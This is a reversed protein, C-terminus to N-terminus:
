RYKERLKLVNEILRKTQAPTDDPPKGEVPVKNLDWNWAALAKVKDGKYRRLLRKLYRLGGRTNQRPDFPDVIEIGSIRKIEKVTIPMLQYLGMAGKGSVAKPNFGKSEWESLGLALSEDIGLRKAELRIFRKIDEKTWDESKKGAFQRYEFEEEIHILEKQLVKNSEEAAARAEAEAPLPKALMEKIKKEREKLQEDSMLGLKTMEVPIDKTLLKHAQETKAGWFGDITGTYRAKEKLVKQYNAVQLITVLGYRGTEEAGVIKQLRKVKKDDLQLQKNLGSKL